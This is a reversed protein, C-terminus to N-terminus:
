PILKGLGEFIKDRVASEVSREHGNEDTVTGAKGVVCGPWPFRNWEGMCWDRCLERGADSWAPRTDKSLPGLMAALNRWSRKSQEATLVGTAALEPHADAPHFHNAPNRRIGDLEQFVDHAFGTQEDYSFGRAKGKLNIGTATGVELREWRILAAKRIEQIADLAAPWRESQKAVEHAADVGARIAAPTGPHGPAFTTLGDLIAISQLAIDRLAAVAEPDGELKARRHLGQIADLASSLNEAPTKM